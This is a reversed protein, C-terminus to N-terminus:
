DMLWSDIHQYTKLEVRAAEVDDAVLNYTTFYSANQKVNLSFRVPLLTASGAKIEFPIDREFQKIIQGTPKWRVLIRTIRHSGPEIGRIFAFEQAFDVLDGTKSDSVGDLNLSFVYAAEGSDTKFELPIVLLTADPTKREPAFRVTQCAAALCLFVAAAAAATIRLVTRVIPM